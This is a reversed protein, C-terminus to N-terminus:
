KDIYTYDAYVMAYSINEELVDKMKKLADIIFIIM